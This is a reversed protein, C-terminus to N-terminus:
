SKPTEAKEITRAKWKMSKKEEQDTSHEEM